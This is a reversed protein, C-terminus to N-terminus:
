KGRLLPATFLDQRGGDHRLDQVQLDAVDDIEGPAQHGAAVHGVAAQDFLAARQRHIEFAPRDEVRARDDALLVVAVEPLHNWRGWWWCPHLLELALEDLLGADSITPLAAHPESVAAM